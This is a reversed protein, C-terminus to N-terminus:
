RGTIQVPKARNLPPLTGRESTVRNRGAAKSQYMLRDARDLAEQWTEDPQVMTAGISVTVTVRMGDITLWSEEVLMRLREAALELDAASALRVVALFEEGGWRVPWDHPRLGHAITKGVMRLADDGVSHGWTDNVSKFHDVDIFLLGVSTGAAVMPEIHTQVFRRNGLETLPDLFSADLDSATSTALDATDRCHFVEVSGVIQGLDDRIPSAKVTVPVRHGDRHHLYVEAERLRGDNMVGALPCGHTCLQYGGETVHRLIGESCSHGTVAAAPYGTIQEAGANWYTIRRDLDVFYVGDEVQELITRYGVGAGSGGLRRTGTHERREYNTNM